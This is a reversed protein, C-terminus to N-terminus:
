PIVQQKGASAVEDALVADLASRSSVATAFEKGNGAPCPFRVPQCNRIGVALSTSSDWTSGAHQLKSCSGLGVALNRGMVFERQNAPNGLSSPVPASPRNQKEISWGAIHQTGIAHNIRRPSSSSRADISAPCCSRRPRESATTTLRRPLS